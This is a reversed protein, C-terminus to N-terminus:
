DGLVETLDFEGDEQNLLASKVRKWTEPSEKAMEVKLINITNAVMKEEPEAWKSQYAVLDKLTERVEKHLRVLDSVAGDDHISVEDMLQTLKGNLGQVNERLLDIEHGVKVAVLATASKKVIPQFHDKMHRYVSDESCGLQESIDECSRGDEFYQMELESREDCSCVPCSPNAAKIYEGMHNSIHRQTTIDRWGKDRDLERATVEGETIQRELEDRSEHQCFPCSRKTQRGGVMCEASNTSPNVKHHDAM